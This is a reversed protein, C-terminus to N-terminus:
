QSPAAQRSAVLYPTELTGASPSEVGGLRALGLTRGGRRPRLGDPRGGQGNAQTTIPTWDAALFFVVRGGVIGDSEDLPYLGGRGDGGAGGASPRAYRRSRVTREDSVSELMKLRTSRRLWDTGHAATM